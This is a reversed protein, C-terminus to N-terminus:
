NLRPFEKDVCGWAFWEDPKAQPQRKHSIAQVTISSEARVKKGALWDGGRFALADLHPSPMFTEGQDIAGSIQFIPMAYWQAKFDFDETLEIVFFQCKITVGVRDPSTNHVSGWLTIGAYHFNGSEWWGTYVVEAHGDAGSNEGFGRDVDTPRNCPEGSYVTLNLMMFAAFIVAIQFVKQKLM